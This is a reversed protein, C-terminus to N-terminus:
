MAKACGDAWRLYKGEGLIRYALYFNYIQRAQYDRTTLKESTVFVGNAERSHAYALQIAAQAAHRADRTFDYAALFILAEETPYYESVIPKGGTKELREDWLQRAAALRAERTTPAAGCCALALSLLVAIRIVHRGSYAIPPRPEQ